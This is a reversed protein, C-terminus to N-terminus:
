NCRRRDQRGIDQILRWVSEIRGSLVDFGRVQAASLPAGSTIAERVLLRDDGSDARLPWVIQKIRIM